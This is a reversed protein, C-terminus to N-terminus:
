RASRHMWVDDFFCFVFTTVTGNKGSKKRSIKWVWGYAQGGHGENAGESRRGAREGASPGGIKILTLNGNKGSSKPNGFIGL